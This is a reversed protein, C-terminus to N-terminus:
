GAEKVTLVLRYQDNIADVIRMELSLWFVRSDIVGEFVVSLTKDQKNKTEEQVLLDPLCLDVQEKVQEYLKKIEKLGSVVTSESTVAARGSIETLQIDNFGELGFKKGSENDSLSAFGADRSSEMIRSLSVCFQERTPQFTAFEHNWNLLPAKSGNIVTFACIMKEELPEVLLSGEPVDSIYSAETDDKTFNSFRLRRDSINRMIYTYRLLDNEGSTKWYFVYHRNGVPYKSFGSSQSMFRAEMTLPREGLDTKVRLVLSNRHPSLIVIDEPLPKVIDDSSKSELMHFNFFLLKSSGLNQLYCSTEEGGREIRIEFDTGEVPYENQSFLFGTSIFALVM